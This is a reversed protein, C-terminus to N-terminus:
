AAKSAIRAELQEIRELAESLAKFAKMYAISYSVSLMGDDGLQVLGPSVKEVDQAVWGLLQKANSNAAVDSKFRFKKVLAGLQKVDSWQSGSLVVDQKLREDSLAGYSNDHNLVDGDSQVRFRTTTADAAEIFNSGNNDPSATTYKISLGIPTANNTNDLSLIAINQESEFFAHGNNGSPTATTDFVRLHGDARLRMRESVTGTTPYACQWTFSTTTGLLNQFRLVKDANGTWLVAAGSAGGTEGGFYIANSSADPSLLQINTTGSGEVVLASGSTATVSGASGALVHLVGDTRAGGVGVTAFQPNSGTSVAQNGFLMGGTGVEDTIVAALNASSPTTLLTQVASLNSTLVNVGQVALTGPAARSVVTDSPHGVKVAVFQPSSSTAVSQDLTADAAVTLARSGDNTDITFVRNTTLAGTKIALTDGDADEVMLGDANATFSSNSITVADLTGGTIAIDDADQVAITGLGPVLGSQSQYFMVKWVGAGMSQAILCDGTATTIDAAGPLQLTAGHTLTLAGSFRVRRTVGAPAVDFATITTSGAIRVNNSPAAGIATTSSSSVEFEEAENIAAADMALTGTLTAGDFTPASTTLVDQDICYPTM